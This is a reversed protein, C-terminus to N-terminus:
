NYYYKFFFFLYSVENVVENMSSIKHFKKIAFQAISSPSTSLDNAESNLPMTTTSVSSSRKVKKLNAIYVKATAGSGIESIKDFEEHNYYTIEKNQISSEFYETLKKIEEDNRYYFTLKFVM